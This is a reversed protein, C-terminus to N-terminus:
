HETHQILTSNDQIVWLNVEFKFRMHIDPRTITLYLLRGVIRQYVTPDELLVGDSHSLKLNSEM